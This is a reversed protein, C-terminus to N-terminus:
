RRAPHRPDATPQYRPETMSQYPPETMAPVPQLLVQVLQGLLQNTLSLQVNLQHLEALVERHQQKSQQFLINDM